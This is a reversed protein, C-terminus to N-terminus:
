LNFPFDSKYVSLQLESPYIDHSLFTSLVNKSPLVCIYVCSLSLRSSSLPSFVSLRGKSSHTPQQTLFSPLLEKLYLFLHAHLQSPAMLVKYPQITFQSQLPPQFFLQHWIESAKLPMTFHRSMKLTIPFQQFIKFIPTVQNHRGKIFKM